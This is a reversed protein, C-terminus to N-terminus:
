SAVNARTGNEAAIPGSNVCAGACDARIGALAIEILVAFTNWIQLEQHKNVFRRNVKGSAVSPVAAYSEPAFPIHWPSTRRATVAPAAPGDVELARFVQV